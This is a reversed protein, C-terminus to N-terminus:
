QSFLSYTLNGYFSHTYHWACPLAATVLILKGLFEGCSKMVMVMKGLGSRPRNSDARLSCPSPPTVLGGQGSSGHHFGKVVDGNGM